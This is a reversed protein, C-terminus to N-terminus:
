LTTTKGYSWAVDLDRRGRALLALNARINAAQVQNANQEYRRLFYPEVTGLGSLNQFGTPNKGSNNLIYTQRISNFKM